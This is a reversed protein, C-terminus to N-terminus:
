KSKELRVAEELLGKMTIGVKPHLLDPVLEVMSRLVFARKYLLPHPITLRDTEVICDDYLLIDLDIPRNQYDGGVSKNKRGLEQEIQQTRELIKQPTLETRCEVVANFFAFSSVFGWPETEIFDSMREINGVEKALRQVALCLLARRDGENSGLGIYVTHLAM